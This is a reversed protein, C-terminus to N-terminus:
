DVQFKRKLWRMLIPLDLVEMIEDAETQDNNSQLVKAKVGSVIEMPSQPPQLQPSEQPHGAPEHLQTLKISMYRKEGTNLHICLWALPAKRQHLILILEL